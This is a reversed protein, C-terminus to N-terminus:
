LWESQSLKQEPEWERKWEEKIHKQCPVTYGDNYQKCGCELREWIQVDTM